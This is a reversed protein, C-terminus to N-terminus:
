RSGGDDGSAAAGAPRRLATQPRAVGVEPGDREVRCAEFPDGDVPRDM